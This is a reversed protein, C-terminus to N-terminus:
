AGDPPGDRRARLLRRAPYTGVARFGRWGREPSMVFRRIRYAPTAPTNWGEITTIAHRFGAAAAASETVRDFDGATGNPYALLRVEVGLGQELQRRSEVLNARQTEPPENGLIVHDLSHSGVTMGARTLFRAEEWDLFLRGADVPRGPRVSAVVERVAEDRRHADLQKLRECLVHYTSAGETGTVPFVQGAWELEGRDSAAFAGAVTEWWPAVEGSLFAPALFFTASLGLDHLMPLAMTVNDRYGDDFTLAVARDPLERGRGLDDLARALDVVHGLQRVLRLQAMLGSRGRGEPAPFGWTGEVNHWGLVLLRHGM